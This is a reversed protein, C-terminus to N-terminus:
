RVEVANLIRDFADDLSEDDTAIASLESVWREYQYREGVDEVAILRGRLCALCTVENVDQRFRIEGDNVIGCPTQIDGDIGDHLTDDATEISHILREIGGVVASRDDIVALARINSLANVLHLM